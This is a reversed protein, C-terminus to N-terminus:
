HKDRDVDYRMHDYEGRQMKGQMDKIIRRTAETAHLDNLLQDTVDVIEVGDDAHLVTLTIALVNAHKAVDGLIPKLHQQLSDYPGTGFVQVHAEDQMAKGRAELQKVLEQNGAQKAADREQQLQKLNQNHLDSRWYALAASRADVVGIRPKGDALVASCFLAMICVAVILRSM